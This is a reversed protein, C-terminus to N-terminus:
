RDDEKPSLPSSPTSLLAAVGLAQEDSLPPAEADVREQAARIDDATVAM